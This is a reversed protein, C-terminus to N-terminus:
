NTSSLAGLTESADSITSTLVNSQDQPSCRFVKVSHSTSQRISVDVVFYLARLILKRPTKESIWTNINKSRTATKQQENKEKM